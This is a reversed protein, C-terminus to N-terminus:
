TLCKLIVYVHKYVASVLISSVDKSGLNGNLLLARSSGASNLLIKYSELNFSRYISVAYKLYLILAKLVFIVFTRENSSDVNPDVRPTVRAHSTDHSTDVKVRTSKRYPM